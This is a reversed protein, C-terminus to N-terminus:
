GLTLSAFGFVMESNINHIGMLSDYTAAMYGNGLLKHFAILM